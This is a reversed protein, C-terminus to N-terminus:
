GSRLSPDVENPRSAESGSLMVFGVLTMGLSGKDDQAFRLMESLTVPVSTSDNKHETLILSKTVYYEHCPFGTTNMIGNTPIANRATEQM